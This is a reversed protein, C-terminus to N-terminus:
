DRQEAAPGEAPAEPSPVVSSAAVVGRFLAEAARRASEASREDPLVEGLQRLLDTLQKVNRVFDGASIAASRTGLAEDSPALLTALDKGKAWGHALAVFGADPPRTLPLGLAEEDANLERAVAETRHWREDLRRNTLRPAAAEAALPGRAEYTFVSVAGAMEATTLGDLLAREASEAVLLDQPHYIRALRAGAPTLSWGRVYGWRELLQLVKDFQRALSDSRGKVQRELRDVQRALREARADARLHNRLDPCSAVALGEAARLARREARNSPGPPGADAAALSLAVRRQFDRNKPAFPEPLVLRAVVLPPSDFNKAGLSILRRSATIARLSLDGKKRQSTSLVAVKETTRAGGPMRAPVLVVDGPRLGARAAVIAWPRARSDEAQAGRGESSPETRRRYEPVDGLECAAEETAVALEQRARELSRELRVVDADARYQAFSLNLLHHAQAPTTRRVLNTAMNYTPRFSSTLTYSRAGALSAVQDFTVGPSWLAVAYGVEDTGRRGARGTLQTYEGPTLPEVREGGFKSLKEIVVSRAPMNIGLSLTETAFVVRVLGALFCREVAEKFPPVLGAHHAAFGAELGALWNGYGLAALDAGSLNAAAAEAIERIQRREQTTTLRGGERMCQRVAEDCGARSFIFYIAPLLGEEGLLDVTESRRPAFLGSQRHARWLAEVNATLAVGRPNPREDVFTPLLLLRESRREGVLFLNHLPVPRREEIVATTSGRVTGVWDALEEANSVTASLCVLDVEPPLHIIVEEWVPGRYPDQLYHVEDLVVYRLGALTSSGAYIMNRLVETTMVVIPADGNVSNDGTLLGVKASGYRRTFDAFKQNSLAKLPTTYFAKGGEDIARAVAYEAVVTKGSGTPAAVVVNHGRDLADMAELQFADLEFPYGALFSAKVLGLYRSRSAHGCLSAV